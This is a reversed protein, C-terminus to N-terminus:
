EAAAPKEPPATRNGDARATNLWALYDEKTPHVYLKGRMLSHRTGCYQTCVLDWVFRKDEVGDERYGDLWADGSRRTNSETPEFWLPITRGPLADQKVRMAPVFFSHGVDRTRLYCITKQGKWTHVDNVVFVDDRQPPLRQEFDHKAKAKDAWSAMRDPSAYRMRYEWQRTTVEIQLYEEGRGADFQQVLSTPYKISAWANIQVVALGFLLVGPIVTWLMELRHNGHVYTSKRAPDHAFRFMNCVLLAETLVYFFAVVALILYFLFDIEPSFTSAKPPLWWGVWPSVATLLFIGFLVIGFLWGWFRQGM